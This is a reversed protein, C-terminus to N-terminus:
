AIFKKWQNKIAALALALAKEIEDSKAIQEIILVPLRQLEDTFNSYIIIRFSDGTQEV